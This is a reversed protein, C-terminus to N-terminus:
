KAGVDGAIETIRREVATHVDEDAAEFGFEGKELEAAVQDLAELLIEADEASIIGARGLGRVHARSGAIDDGALRRDYPLSVTYAMLEDSPGDEFRGHWLTMESGREEGDM